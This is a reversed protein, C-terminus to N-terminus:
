TTFEMLFILRLIRWESFFLDAVSDALFDVLSVCFIRRPIRLYIRRQFEWYLSGPKSMQPRKSRSAKTLSNRPHKKTEKMAHGLNEKSIRKHQAGKLLM